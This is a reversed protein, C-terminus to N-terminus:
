LSSPIASKPLGTATNSSSFDMTKGTVIQPATRSMLDDSTGSIAPLNFTKDETLNPVAFYIKNSKDSDFISLILSEYTTPTKVAVVGLATDASLDIQSFYDVFNNVIDGYFTTQNTIGPNNIKKKWDPM